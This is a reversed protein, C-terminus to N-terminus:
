GFEFIGNAERELLKKALNMRGASTAYLTILKEGEAVTDGTVKHFYMGANKIRPNGLAHGVEFIKKNSMHKIEGGQYSIYHHVIEGLEIKDSSVTADGGQNGIIEKLKKLAQGSTIIEKAMDFGKGVPAKETLEILKGAMELADLELTKSKEPHNELVRLFEICELAPGVAKGDIGTIDRKHVSLHIGFKACVREFTEKVKQFEEEKIKAGSGVPVDFVVHTVGQAIKKAVISSVFKDISEMGLPKQVKIIEDDAPALDLGGGWVMFANSKFIMSELAIKDFTMPMLVELMDTTASSTTIARTSTNPVKMGEISAVISVIIPTIGKGAVGGISHKDAVIGDFALREGTEALAKTMYEIEETDFGPSYGAAAFYTTLTSGLRGNAIDRMIKFFDEYKLKEGLLKRRISEVADSNSIFDVKIVENEKLNYKSWIDEYLGIRGAEVISSTVDAIVIVGDGYSDWRVELADGPNIGYEKADSDNVIVVFESGSSIDLKKASLFHSM